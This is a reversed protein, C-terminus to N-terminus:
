SSSFHYISHQVLISGMAVGRQSFPCTLRSRHLMSITESPLDSRTLLTVKKEVTESFDSKELNKGM